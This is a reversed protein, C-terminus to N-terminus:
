DWWGALHWRDAAHDRYLLVMVGDDRVGQFYDREFRTDDFGGSIRDPGLSVSLSYNRTGDFYRDPVLLGRRMITRIDIALPAPLIQLTLEPILGASSGGPLPRDAVQDAPDFRWVLRREPLPHDIRHAIGIADAQKDLLHALAAETARATAFGFDFLDGQRDALPAVADVRLAIRMVTAEFTVVELAARIVHLWTRRDSTPTSCRVPLAVMTRNSLSFELVVAHAGERRAALAETVTGLLSNVIFVVQEQNSLEYDVWELEASPLERPRPGFIPRPDDARALKWIRVGEAGFRVEVSQPDLRALDGCNEIGIAAILPYFSAPPPPHLVDVDLPALYSRDTGPPVVTIRTESTRAAVEAVIPTTAIGAHVDSIDLFELRELLREAMAVGDLGRADAWIVGRGCELRVRPTCELAAAGIETSRAADTPWAPSSLCVFTM